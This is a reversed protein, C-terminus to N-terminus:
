HVLLLVILAVIIFLLTFGVTMFQTDSVRQSKRLAAKNKTARAPAGAVAASSSATQSSPGPQTGGATGGALWEYMPHDDRMLPDKEFAREHEVMEQALALQMDGGRYYEKILRRLGPESVRKSEYVSRLTVGSVDIGASERLIEDRSMSEVRPREIPGRPAVAESLTAIHKEPPTPPPPMIAERIGAVYREHTHPPVTDSRRESPAASRIREAAYRRIGVEHQAVQEQVGRVERRLSEKVDKLQRENRIRERRHRMLHPERRNWVETGWPLLSPRWERSVEETHTEVRRITEAQTPRSASHGFGFPTGSDSEPASEQSYAQRAMADQAMAEFPSTPATPGSGEASLEDAVEEGPVEQAEASTDSDLEAITDADAADLAEAVTANPDSEIHDQAHELELANAKAAAEGETGPHVESLEQNVAHRRLDIYDSAVDRAEEHSLHLRIEGEVPQELQDEKTSEQEPRKDEGTEAAKDPRKEPPQTKGQQESILEILSEGRQTAKKKETKEKKSQPAKEAGSAPLNEFPNKGTSPNNEM